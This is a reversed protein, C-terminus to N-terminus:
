EVFPNTRGSPLTAQGGNDTSSKLQNIRDITAQDFSADDPSTYTSINSSSIIISNLLLIVAVLGGVITLVFLIIHYRRLMTIVFLKITTLSINM